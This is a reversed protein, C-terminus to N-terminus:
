EPQASPPVPPVPTLPFFDADAKARESDTTFTAAIQDRVQRCSECVAFHARYTERAGPERFVSEAKGIAAYPLVLAESCCTLPNPM